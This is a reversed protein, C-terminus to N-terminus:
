GNLHLRSKNLMRPNISGDDVLNLNKDNCKIKLIVNVEKGKKDYKDYSNIRFCLCHKKIKLLSLAMNTINNAIKEASEESRFGNNGCHM